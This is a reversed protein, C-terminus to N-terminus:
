NGASEEVMNDLGGRGLCHMNAASLLEAYTRADWRDILDSLTESDDITLQGDKNCISYLLVSFDEKEAINEFQRATLSRFRVPKAILFIPKTVYRFGDAQPQLDEATQAVGNRSPIDEEVEDPLAAMKEEMRERDEPRVMDIPPTKSVM